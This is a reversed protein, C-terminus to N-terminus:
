RIEREMRDRLRGLGKARHPGVDGQIVVMGKVAVSMHSDCILINIEEKRSDLLRKGIKTFLVFM